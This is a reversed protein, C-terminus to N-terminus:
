SAGTSRQQDSAIWAKATDSPSAPQPRRQARAPPRALAIDEFQRAITRDAFALFAQVLPSLYQRPRWIAVFEGHLDLGAVAVRELVGAAVEVAVHSEFLFAAGEGTAVVRKVAEINDFQLEFRPTLGAAALGEVLLARSRAFPGGLGVLPQRALSALPLARAGRRAWAHGRGVVLVLPDRYLPRTVLTSPVGHGLTIGLEAGGRQVREFVAAAPEVALDVRVGAYERQFRAIVPPLLYLGTGLGAVLRVRGARLGKLQDVAERMAALRELVEIGYHYVAEGTETTQVPRRSRDLLVADLERELARVQQSVAPRSLFLRRAAGTFGGAEVVACLCGLQEANM